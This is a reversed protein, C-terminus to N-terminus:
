AKSVCYSSISVRKSIPYSSFSGAKIGSISSSVVQAREVKQEMRVHMLLKITDERINATMADFM